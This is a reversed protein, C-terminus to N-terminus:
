LKAITEYNDAETKDDRVEVIVPLFLASTGDAKPKLLSNFEVTIIKNTYVDLDFNEILRLGKSMDNPDVPELGRQHRQMGSINVRVKRDSSVCILSGIGASFEGEGPNWGIVQLECQKKEKLKIQNKSTTSEWIGALNKLVLGEEGKAIYQKYLADVEEVSNVYQYPTLEIANHIKSMEDVVRWAEEFRHIYPTASIGNLWDQYPLIDWCRYIIHEEIWAWEDMSEQIKALAKNKADATKAESVKANMTLLTEESKALKSIKGNGVERPMITGDNNKILLEGTMLMSPAITHLSAFRRSLVKSKLEKGNRSIFKIDGNVDALNYFAGDSKLQAIAPYVISDIEEVGSCRMYSFEQIWNKGYISNVTKIDVGKAISGNLIRHLLDVHTADLVESAMMKITAIKKRKEKLDVLTMLVFNEQEDFSAPFLAPTITMTKPSAFYNISTDYTLRLISNWKENTVYKGLIEKKFTSKNNSELEAVIDVIKAM